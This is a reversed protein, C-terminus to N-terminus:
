QQADVEETAYTRTINLVRRWLFSSSTVRCVPQKLFLHDVVGHIYTCLLYPVLTNSALITSVNEHRLNKLYRSSAM